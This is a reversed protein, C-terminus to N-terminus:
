LSYTLPPCLGEAETVVEDSFRHFCPRLSVAASPPPLVAIRQIGLGLRRRRELPSYSDRSM